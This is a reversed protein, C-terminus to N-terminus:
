RSQQAETRAHEWASFSRCIKTKWATWFTTSWSRTSGTTFAVCTDLKLEVSSHCVVARLSVLGWRATVVNRIRQRQLGEKLEEVTPRVELCPTPNKSQAIRNAVEVCEESVQLHSALCATLYLLQGPFSNSSNSFSALLWTSGSPTMNASYGTLWTTWCDDSPPSRWPCLQRCAVASWLPGCRVLATGTGPVPWPPPATREWYATSPVRHSFPLRSIKLVKTPVFFSKQVINIYGGCHDFWKSRVEFAASRFTTLAFVYNSILFFNGSFKIALFLFFYYNWKAYHNTKNM